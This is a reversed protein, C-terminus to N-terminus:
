AMAKQSRPDQLEGLLSYPVPHLLAAAEFTSAVMLESCTLNTSCTM